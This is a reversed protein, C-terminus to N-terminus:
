YFTKTKTAINNNLSNHVPCHKSAKILLEKNKSKLTKNLYVNLIIGNIRRPNTGMSKKSEIYSGDMDINHRKAIIGMITLLCSSLASVVLDTPSFKRGMGENDLPADTLILSNSDIHLSETRLDGIYETRIQPNM